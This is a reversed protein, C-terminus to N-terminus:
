ILSLHVILSPLLECQSESLYALFLLMRFFKFGQEFNGDYMVYFNM